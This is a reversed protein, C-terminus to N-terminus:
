VEANGSNYHSHYYLFFGSMKFQEFTLSDKGSQGFLHLILTTDQM